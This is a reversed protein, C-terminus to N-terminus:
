TAKESYRFKVLCVPIIKYKKHVQCEDPLDDVTLEHELHSSLLIDREMLWDQVGILKYERPILNIEFNSPSSLNGIMLIPCVNVKLM